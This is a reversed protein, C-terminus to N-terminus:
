LKRGPMEPGRVALTSRAGDTRGRPRDRPSGSARGPTVLRRPCGGPDRAPAVTRDGPGGDVVAGIAVPELALACEEIADLHDPGLGGDDPGLHRVLDAAGVGSM